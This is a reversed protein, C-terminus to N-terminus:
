KWGVTKLPMFPILIKWSSIKPGTSATVRQPM